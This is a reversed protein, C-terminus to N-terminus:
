KSVIISTLSERFPINPEQACQVLAGGSTWLQQSATATVRFSPHCELWAVTILPRGVTKPDQHSIYSFPSRPKVCFKAARRTLM